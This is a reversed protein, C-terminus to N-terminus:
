MPCPIQTLPPAQVVLKAGDGRAGVAKVVITACPDNALGSFRATFRGLRTSRVTVTAHQKQMTATLAVRERAKFHVGRVQLPNRKVLSLSAAASHSASTAAPFALAAIALAATLTRTM